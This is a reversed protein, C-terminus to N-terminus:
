ICVMSLIANESEVSSSRRPKVSIDLEVDVDQDKDEGEGLLPRRQQIARTLVGATRNALLHTYSFMAISSEASDAESSSSIALQSTYSRLASLDSLNLSPWHSRAEIIDGQSFAVVALMHHMKQGLATDSHSIAPADLGGLLIDRAEDHLLLHMHDNVVRSLLKSINRYNSNCYDADKACRNLEIALEYRLPHVPDLSSDYPFASFNKADWNYSLLLSCSSVLLLLVLHHANM